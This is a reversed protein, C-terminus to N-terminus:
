VLRSVVTESCEFYIYTLIAMEEVGCYFDVEPFEM